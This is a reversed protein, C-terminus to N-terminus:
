GYMPKPSKQLDKAWHPILGWRLMKLVDTKGDAKLGVTAIPQSPAPPALKPISNLPSPKGGASASIADALGAGPRRGEVV